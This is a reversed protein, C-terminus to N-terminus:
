DDELVDGRQESVHVGEARGDVADGLVEGVALDAADESDPRTPEDHGCGHRIPETGSEDRHALGPLERPLDLPDLVLELVPRVQELDMAVRDLGPIVHQDDVVHEGGAPGRGCRHPQGLLEAARHFSKAEDDGDLCEVAALVEFAEVDQGEDRASAHSMCAGPTAESQRRMVTPGVSASGPGVAPDLPDALGDWYVQDSMAVTVRTRGHRRLVTGVASSIAGSM